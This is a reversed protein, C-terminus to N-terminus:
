KRKADYYKQRKTYNMIDVYDDYSKRHGKMRTISGNIAPLLEPHQLLISEKDYSSMGAHEMILLQFEAPSIIGDPNAETKVMTAVMDNYAKSAKATDPVQSAAAEAADLVDAIRPDKYMERAVISANYTNTVNVGDQIMKTNGSEDKSYSYSPDYGSRQTARSPASGIQGLTEMKMMMSEKLNGSPLTAIIKKMATRGEETRIDINIHETDLGGDNATGTRKRTLELQITNANNPIAVSRINVDKWTVEKAPLGFYTSQPNVIAMSADNKLMHSMGMNLYSSMVDQEAKKLGAFAFTVAETGKFDARKKDINDDFYTNLKEAGENVWKSKKSILKSFEDYSGTYGEKQAQDHWTAILGQRGDTNNQQAFGGTIQNQYITSKTIVAAKDGSNSSYFSKIQKEVGNPIESWESNFEEYQDKADSDHKFFDDRVKYAVAKAEISADSSRSSELDMSRNVEDSVKQMYAPDQAKTLDFDVGNKNAIASISEYDKDMTALLFRSREVAISSKTTGTDDQTLLINHDEKMKDFEKTQQETTITEEGHITWTKNSNPGINGSDLPKGPKYSTETVTQKNKSNIAVSNAMMSSLLAGPTTGNMEAQQDLYAAYKPNGYVSNSIAIQRAQNMADAKTIETKSSIKKYLGTEPSFEIGAAVLQDATVTNNDLVTKTLTNVEAQVDQTQAIPSMTFGTARDEKYADLAKKTYYQVASPDYKDANKQYFAQNKAYEAHAANSKTVKGQSGNLTNYESVLGYLDAGSVDEGQSIRDIMGAKNKEMNALDQSLYDADASWGSSRDKMAGVLQMQAGAAQAEAMLPAAYEQISMPNYEQYQVPKSYRNVAM